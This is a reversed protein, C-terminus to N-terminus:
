GPIGCYPSCPQISPMDCDPAQHATPFTFAETTSVELAVTSQRGHCQSVPGPLPGLGWAAGRPAGALGATTPPCPLHHQLQEEWWTSVQGRLHAACSGLGGSPGRNQLPDPAALGGGPRHCIGQLSLPIHAAARLSVSVPVGVSVQAGRLFAWRGRSM